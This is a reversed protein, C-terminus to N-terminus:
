QQKFCTGGRQKGDIESEKTPIMKVNWYGSNAHFGVNKNGSQPIPVYVLLFGWGLGHYPLM